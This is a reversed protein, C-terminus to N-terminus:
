HPDTRNKRSRRRSRLHLVRRQRARRRRRRRRRLGAAPHQPYRSDPQAAASKRQRHPRLARHEFGEAHRRSAVSPIARRWRIGTRRPSPTRRNPHDPRHSAPSRKARDNASFVRRHQDLFFDEPRLNEIAANLANNDLLVAGLVSREADLNNPLPRELTSEAPM